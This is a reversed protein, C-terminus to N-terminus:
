LLANTLLYDRLEAQNMATEVASNYPRDVDSRIMGPYSYDITEYVAKFAPLVVFYRELEVTRRTEEDNLLEEYLKEGPKSGIVRTEIDGPRYGHRPALEEIMVAALDAIRVVPMKTVFVEGGRALFASDMVLRVADELTMIFRTM